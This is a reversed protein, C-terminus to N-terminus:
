SFNQVPHSVKMCAWYLARGLCLVALLIVFAWAAYIGGYRRAHKWTGFQNHLFLFIPNSNIEQCKVSARTVTICFELKLREGIGM